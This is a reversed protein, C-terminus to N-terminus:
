REPPSRRRAKAAATPASPTNRELIAGVVRAVAAADETSIVSALERDLTRLRLDTAEILRRGKATIIAIVGRRDTADPRREVLGDRELRSLMNSVAADDIRLTAAIQGVTIGPAGCIGLVYLRQPNLEPPFAPAYFEQIARWGVYFNFCLLGDYPSEPPPADWRTRRRSAPM